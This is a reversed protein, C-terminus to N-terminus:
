SQRSNGVSALLFPSQPVIKFTNLGFEFRFATGPEGLSFIVLIDLTTKNTFHQFLNPFPWQVEFVFFVSTTITIGLGVLVGLPRSVNM